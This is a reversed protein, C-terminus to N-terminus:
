VEKLDKFKDFDNIDRSSGTDIDSKFILCIAGEKQKKIVEEVAEFYNLNSYTLIRVGNIFSIVQFLNDRKEKFEREKIARM